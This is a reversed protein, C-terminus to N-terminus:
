ADRGYEGDGFRLIRGATTTSRPSSTATPRALQRAPRAGAEWPDVDVPTTVLLAVAPQVDRVDADLETRDTLLRGNADYSVQEPRAEM